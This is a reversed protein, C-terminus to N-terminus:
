KMKKPDAPKKRAKAKSKNSERKAEDADLAETIWVLEMEDDEDLSGNKKLTEELQKKRQKYGLICAQCLLEKGQVKSKCHVYENGKYYANCHCVGGM